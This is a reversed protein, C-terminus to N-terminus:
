SPGGTHPEDSKPATPPVSSRRPGQMLRNWGRIPHAPFKMTLENRLTQAGQTDGLDDMAVAAQALCLATLGPNLREHVAPIALLEAVGLLRQDRDAEVLLSRGIAALCWGALWAPTDSQIRGQLRGRAERRVDAEGTRAAVIDFVLQLGPDSGRAEPMVVLEGCEFAASAKYLSALATARGPAAPIAERAFARVAPIDVWMPPTLPSLGWTEDWVLAAPLQGLRPERASTPEQWQDRGEGVAGAYAVMAVVAQAHAGRNLRCELLTLAFAAATPGTRGMYILSLDDLLPEAGAYDGKEVRVRARWLQEGRALLERPAATDPSVRRVRDWGIVRPEGRLTLVVADEDAKALEGVLAPDNGRLELHIPQGWAAATM